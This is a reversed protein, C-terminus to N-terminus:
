RAVLARAKADIAALDEETGPFATRLARVVGARDIFYVNCRLAPRRWCRDVQGEADSAVPFSAGHNRAFAVAEAAYATREEPTNPVDVSVGVVDLGAAAYRRHVAEWVQMAKKCPECWPARAPPVWTGYLVVMAPHGERLRVDGLALPPAPRGVEAPGGCKRAAARLAEISGDPPSSTTESMDPTTATPRASAGGCAALALAAIALARRV